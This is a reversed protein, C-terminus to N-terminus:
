RVRERPREGCAEREARLNPNDIQLGALRDDHSDVIASGVDSSADDVERDACGSLEAHVMAPDRAHPDLHKFSIGMRSFGLRGSVTTSLLVCSLQRSDM